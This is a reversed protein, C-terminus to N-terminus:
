QVQRGGYRSVLDYLTPRSVGLLEAARSMNGDAMALARAVADREALARVDKLSLALDESGGPDFGLDVSTIFPGDSMIVATKLRNELERVNGPWAFTEIAAIADKTFGRKRQGHMASFQRLLAHALISAAGPRERLPPVQITVESLRFYLDERFRDEAILSKLNRNTAGVIRVDLAIEERGGVREIVKNQLVRLIKAQLALPMDGIEDLFLTGRHALEIKGVTQKAAGTFAGKEYGFLESELLQEPIAACNIAVFRADKRGSLSHIAKALLEKGTGSEGLILVSVSTPAVKEVMRFIRAMSEDTVILGEFTAGPQIGRLRRNEEELEHIRFARNVVLRLIDPEIPKQYFDTAGAAMAALTSARDDHATLVVIKTSPSLSMVERLTEIGETIGDVDPPLGLDQLIVAPNASRVMSLADRRNAATLVEYEPFCSRLQAQLSVDDEVILLKARYRSSGM